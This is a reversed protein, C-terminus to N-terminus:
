EISETALGKAIFQARLNNLLDKPWWIHGWRKIRPNYDFKTAKARAWWYLGDGQAYASDNIQARPAGAHFAAISLTTCNHNIAHFAPSGLNYYDLHENSEYPKIGRTLNEYYNLINQAERDSVSFHVAHIKPNGAKQYKTHEANANKWVRLVPDGETDFFGWMKGYRGFDFILDQDDDKVRLSVHGWKHDPWVKDVVLFEVFSKAGASVSILLTIFFLFTFKLSSM